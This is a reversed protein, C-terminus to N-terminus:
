YIAKMKPDTEMLKYCYAHTMIHTLNIEPLQMRFVPLQEPLPPLELGIAKASDVIVKDAIM